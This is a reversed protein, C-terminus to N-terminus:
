IPSIVGKRSFSFVRGFGTRTYLLNAGASEVLSAGNGVAVMGGPQAGPPISCIEGRGELGDSAFDGHGNTPGTGVGGGDVPNTSEDLDISWLFMACIPEDPRNNDM